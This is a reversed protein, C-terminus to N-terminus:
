LKENSGIRNILTNEAHTLLEEVGKLIDDRGSSASLSNASSYNFMRAIDSMTLNFKKLKHKKAM